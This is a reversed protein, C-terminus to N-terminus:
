FTEMLSVERSNAVKYSIVSDNLQISKQPYKILCEATKMVAAATGCFVNFGIEKINLNLTNQVISDPYYELGSLRLSNMEIKGCLHMIKLEPNKDVIDSIDLFCNNGIICNQFIPYESIILAEADVIHKLVYNKDEKKSTSAAFVNAGVSKLLSLLNEFIEGSGLILIKSKYVEINNLYLRKLVLHSIYKFLNLDKSNPNLVAIKIGKQTCYDLDIGNIVNFDFNYPLYAVITNPNLKNIIKEDLYTIDDSKVIIDIENLIETKIEDVFINQTEWQKEQQLSLILDKTKLDDTLTYVKKAGAYNALLTLVGPFNSPNPVILTKDKLNLEFTKIVNQINRILKKQM